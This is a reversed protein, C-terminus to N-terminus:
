DEFAGDEFAELDRWGVIGDHYLLELLRGAPSAESAVLLADSDYFVQETLLRALPLTEADLAISEGDIALVADENDNDILLLRAAPTRMLLQDTDALASRIEEIDMPENEPYFAIHDIPRESLTEALLRDILSDDALLTERIQDRLKTRTAASLVGPNRQRKLDPDGYRQDEPIRQILRETVGATLDQMTPARFGISYTMCHDVAVGHHPVGPPLYLMDGPELVWEETAEFEKLIRVDLGERFEVHTVPYEIMWRRQGHAQLLFVDYEDIHAGVSGGPPAYSIMLDDIRWDPVFRFREVLGMLEPILKECDTVLLSYGEEPLSTFDEESFPGQRMSWPKDGDQGQGNELILRSPVNEECALGALDEPALPSEFGPIAQRILLPKKQWYHRLFDDPSLNGLVNGSSLNPSTEAM